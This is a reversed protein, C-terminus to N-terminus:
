PKPGTRMLTALHYRGEGCPLVRVGCVSRYICTLLDRGIGLVSSLRSAAAYAVVDDPYLALELGVFLPRSPTAAAALVQVALARDFPSM